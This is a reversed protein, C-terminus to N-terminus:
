EMELKRIDKLNKENLDIFVAPSEQLNEFDKRVICLADGDLYCVLRKKTGTM